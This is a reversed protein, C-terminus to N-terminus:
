VLPTTLEHLTFFMMHLTPRMRCFFKGMFPVAEIEYSDYGKGGGNKRLKSTSSKMPMKKLIPLEKKWQYISPDNLDL